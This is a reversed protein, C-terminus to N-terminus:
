AEGRAVFAQLEALTGEGDVPAFTYADLTQGYANLLNQRTNKIGAKAQELFDGNRIPKRFALALSRPTTSGKEALVFAAPSQAAFSNQKGSPSVTTVAEVLAALARDVLGQDENLNRMLQDTDICIYTYFLGSGFGALDVHGAGSDERTNLDDVATFYDGENESPNVSFAHSVQIAADMNDGSFQALMRGFMAIDVARGQGRLQALEEKTPERKNEGVVRALNQLAQIEAPTYHVLQGTFVNGDKTHKDDTKGFQSAVKKGWDLVKKEPLGHDRLIQVFHEQVMRKSRKGLHEGLAEAFVDSQRWARKLCQSSIRLRECGGVYCTKPNGTDDRNLNSPPYFTLIHLQIFQTM